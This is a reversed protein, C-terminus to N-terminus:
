EKLKNLQESIDGLRDGLEGYGSVKLVAISQAIIGLQENSSKWQKQPYLSKKLWSISDYQGAEELAAYIIKLEEEDEKSWEAPKQEGQKELWSIASLCNKKEDTISTNMSRNELYSIIWKRIKEDKNEAKRVIVKGDKIEAKYGEPITYEFGVLESDKAGFPIEIIDKQSM